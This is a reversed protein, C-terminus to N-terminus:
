APNRRQLWAGDSLVRILIEVYEESLKAAEGDMGKAVYKSVDPTGAGCDAPFAIPPDSPNTVFYWHGEILLYGDDAGHIVYSFGSYYGQKDRWVM